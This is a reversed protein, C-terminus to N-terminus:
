KGVDLIRMLVHVLIMHVDEVIQMDDVNVHFSHYVLRKLEGGDYGCVGITVCGIKKAYEIARLVNPSNGSTSIAVLM